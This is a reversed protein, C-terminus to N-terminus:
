DNQCCCQIRCDVGWSIFMESSINHILYSVTEFIIWAKGSDVSKRGERKNEEKELKGRAHIRKQSKLVCM